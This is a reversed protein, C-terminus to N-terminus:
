DIFEDITGQFSGHTDTADSHFCSAVLERDLRDIGRCYSLLLDSIAQRDALSAPDPTGPSNPALSMGASAVHRGDDPAVEQHGPRDM